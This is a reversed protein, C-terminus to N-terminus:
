RDARQSPVETATIDIVDGSSPAPERPVARRPPERLAPKRPRALLLRALFVGIAGAAVVAAAFLGAFVAVLAVIGALAFKLLRM